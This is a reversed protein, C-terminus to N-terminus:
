PTSASAPTTTQAVAGFCMAAAALAILPKCAPM